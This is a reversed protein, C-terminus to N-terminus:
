NAANKDGKGGSEASRGLIRWLTSRSIGLRKAAASRNGKEQALVQRVLQEEIHSLTGNTDLRLQGECSVNEQERSLVQRVAEGSIFMAEGTMVLERMVRRFQAQNGPWHYQCLLSVGEPEVGLVPRARGTNLYSIYQNIMAPLQGAFSRLPPLHLLVCCFRDAFEAGRETITKEDCRISSFILRSRKTIDMDILSSLLDASQAPSLADINKFFVTCGSKMLPSEYSRLLYNQMREGTQACDVTILPFSRANQLLMYDVVLEECAGEEGWLMVPRSDAAIASLEGQMERLLGTRACHSDEYERRIEEMDCYRVGRQWHSAAPVALESAIYATCRREQFVIEEARLDYATDAIRKFCRRGVDSRSTSVRRALYDALESSRLASRLPTGTEDFVAYQMGGLALVDSLMASEARLARCRRCLFVANEFADCISELGSAILVVSLGMEQAKSSTVMDCLVTSIGAARVRRLMLEADQESQIAYIQTEHQMIRCLYDASDTIAPFGVIAYGNSTGEALKIARFIDIFSTKIGIVPLSFEKQLLEATGGRSIIADYQEPHSVRALAVGRELDGVLVTLEVDAYQQAAQEMLAKMNEYPAIGLLRIKNAHLAESGTVIFYRAAAGSPNKGAKVASRM